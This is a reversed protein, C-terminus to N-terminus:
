GVRAPPEEAPEREPVGLRDEAPRGAVLRRERELEADFQVGVLLAVNTIWLWVLMVIVGGLTGYTANYSGFNAVYFAFGASAVVWAVVALAAGPSLWRFRRDKVNPTAHYLLAVLVIVVVLMVPWKAIQWATVAADDMGIQDGIAEALSGSVVLMLAIVAVLLVAVLTILLQIPKLKWFPRGEGVEWVANNARAFAGIYGSAAWLAGILGLGLLAGAGGRDAVVGEVQGRIQDAADQSGVQAVIDLIADTTEPERGVLGLIAALAIFAPFLALVGYYTLAAGWDTLGGARAKSVTRRLVRWWGRPRIDGPDDPLARAM